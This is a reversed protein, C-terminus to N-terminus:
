ARRRSACRYHGRNLREPHASSDVAPSTRDENPPTREGARQGESSLILELSSSLGSHCGELFAAFGLSSAVCDVHSTGDVARAVRRPSRAVSSDAVAERMTELAVAM